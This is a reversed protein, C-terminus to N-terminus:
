DIGEGEGINPSNFFEKELQQVTINSTGSKSQLFPKLVYLIFPISIIAFLIM